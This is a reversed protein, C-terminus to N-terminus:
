DLLYFIKTVLVVLRASPIDEVVRENQAHEELKDNNGRYHNCHPALIYLRKEFSAKFSLISLSKAHSYVFVYAYDSPKPEPYLRQYVSVGQGFEVRKIAEARYPHKKEPYYEKRAKIKEYEVAYARGIGVGRDLPYGMNLPVKSADHPAKVPVGGVPEDRHHQNVPKPM